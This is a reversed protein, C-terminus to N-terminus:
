RASASPTLSTSTSAAPRKPRASLNRSVMSPDMASRRAFSASSEVGSFASSRLAFSGAPEERLPARALPLSSPGRCRFRRGNWRRRRRARPAAVLLQDRPERVADDLGLPGDAHELGQPPVVRKSSCNRLVRWRSSGCSRRRRSRAPRDRTRGARSSRLTRPSRGRCRGRARRSAVRDALDHHGRRELVAVDHAHEGRATRRGEVGPRALEVARGLVLEGVSARGHAVEPLQEVAEERVDVLPGAGHARRRGDVVPRDVGGLGCTLQALAEGREEAVGAHADLGVVPDEGVRRGAAVVDLNAAPAFNLARSM